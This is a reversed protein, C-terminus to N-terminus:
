SGCIRQNGKKLTGRGQNNTGKTQLYKARRELQNTAWLLSRNLM